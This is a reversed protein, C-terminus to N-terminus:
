PRRRSFRITLRGVSENALWASAKQKKAFGALEVGAREAPGEGPNESAKDTTESIIISPPEGDFNGRVGRGFHDSGGWGQM